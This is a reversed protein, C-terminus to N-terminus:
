VHSIQERIAFRTLEVRNHLDLKAMLKTTHSEVTKASINMMTAIQKTTKGQAIYGLVELERPSLTSLRTKTHPM